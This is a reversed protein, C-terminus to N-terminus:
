ARVGGVRKALELEKPRHAYGPHSREPRHELHWRVVQPLYEDLRSGHFGWEASRGPDVLSTWPSAYPSFSADLGAAGLDDWAVDLFRPELKAAAAVSELLDRVTVVNPQAINYVAERPMERAALTVVARAVDGSYVHRVFRAGGDPLLLPGGDLMRELYSWLRLSGDGEGQVVPLRLVLGRVGHSDRLARLAGEARRKGMGYAWQGHDPTGAAPEAMLTAESDEEISPERRAQTVLYVQGSSILVYRGLSAYPTLLLQEVDRADYATFDVTFDFHRGELAKGLAPGDQRDAALHAVGGPVPRKGRSIVTVAHGQDLLARAVHGGLFGTGGVLLVRLPGADRGTGSKL